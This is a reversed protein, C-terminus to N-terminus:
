QVGLIKHLQLSLGYNPRKLVEEVAFKTTANGAIGWLPQIYRSEAYFEKFGEPSIGEGIWPYLIKLDHAWDLKTESMPQKPSMTVHFLVDQFPCAISGNTELHINFGALMLNNVLDIDLQLLPEGGSIVVHKVDHSKAELDRIIEVATMMTGGFFDTDCFHCISAARDVERGSWRNCGSLRLFLVVRGAHSGEGQITPGFIEKVKYRKVGM